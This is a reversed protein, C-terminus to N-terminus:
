VPPAVARLIVPLYWARVYVPGLRSTLDDEFEGETTVEVGGSPGSRRAAMDTM